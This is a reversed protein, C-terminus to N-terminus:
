KRIKSSHYIKPKYAKLRVIKIALNRKKLENKLNLTFSKQDYGLGIVDPKIREIVGYPDDKGGLLVKNAIKYKRLDFVRKKESREPRRSKVKAVTGDRGVVVILYEGYAKAQEFFDLHGKHIGDFTGFVMVKKM